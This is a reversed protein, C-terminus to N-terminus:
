EDQDEFSIKIDVLDNINERVEASNYLERLVNLTTDLSHVSYLVERDLFEIGEYMKDIIAELKLIRKIEETYEMVGGDISEYWM